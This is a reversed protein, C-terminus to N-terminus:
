NAVIIKNFSSVDAILSVLIYYGGRNGDSYNTIGLQINLFYVVIQCM